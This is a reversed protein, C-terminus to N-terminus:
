KTDSLFVPQTIAFDGSSCVVKARVYLEDGKFAYSPELGFEKKLVNGDRGIFFTTYSFDQESNIKLRYVKKTIEINEIAIGLGVTSYFDGKEIASSIAAVSLEKAQVMVWGQGPYSRDPRFEGVYEHADDSAVGFISVGRSLVCDWIEEMGPFGGAAFNNNDKGMNYVELLKVGKLAAIDECKLTRRWNPHNIQVIGGASLIFDINIQLVQGISDARQPKVVRKVNVGNIHISKPTTVEEGPIVIFDDQSSDPDLYKTDTIMNHDTIVLFNYDHDQYWRAVPRPFEAGDSNTTHAHMQGKFWRAELTSGGVGLLLLVAIIMIKLAKSSIM